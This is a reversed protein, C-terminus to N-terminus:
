EEKVYYSCGDTAKTWKFSRGVLVLFHTAIRGDAGEREDIAFVESETQRGNDCFQVTFRKHPTIM